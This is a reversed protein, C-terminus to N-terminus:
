EIESLALEAEQKLIEEGNKIRNLFNEFVDAEKAHGKELHLHYLWDYAELSNPDILIYESCLQIVRDWNQLFVYLQILNIRHQKNDPDLEISKKVYLIAAETDNKHYAVSKAMSSYMRASESNYTLEKAFFRDADAWDQNRMITRGLSLVLVVMLLVSLNKKSSEKKLADYFVPVLLVTGLLPLYLWHEFIIANVPIFGMYPLLAVFFWGIGLFIKKKKFFSWLFAAMAVLLIGTGALGRASILSTYFVYPKDFNLHIPAVMLVAYDWMTHSFTIMRVFFSETYANDEVFVIEESAHLYKFKLFVYLLSFLIVVLAAFPTKKRASHDLESWMFFTLLLALGSFVVMSEKTLVALAFMGIAGWFKGSRFFPKKENLSGAFFFLGLLVFLTGLPEPLGAIYSVSETQVPHLLFILAGLLSGARSFKLFKTAFIFILYCNLVHIFLSLLHYGWTNLGFIGYLFFNMLSYIPRYLNDPENFPSSTLLHGLSGNGTVDPNQIILGFEDWIFDGNLVNAYAM